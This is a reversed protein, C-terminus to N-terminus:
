LVLYLHNAFYKVSYMHPKQIEYHPGLPQTQKHYTVFCNNYWHNPNYM